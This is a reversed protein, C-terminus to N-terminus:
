ECECECECECGGGCEDGHEHGGFGHPHGHEVEEATADRVDAVALDFHLTMGALPHNADITVHDDDMAVVQVIRPGEPTNAELQMGIELDKIEQLQARPIQEVMADEREGYADAPALVANVADGASKGDLATELGPIINRAGHLYVLADAGESSDLVNGDADKLTYTISVVKDKTIVM